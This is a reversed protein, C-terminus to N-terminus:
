YTTEELAKIKEDFRVTVLLYYYTLLHSKCVFEFEHGTHGSQAIKLLEKHCIHKFHLVIIQHRKPYNSFM